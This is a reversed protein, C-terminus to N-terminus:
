DVNEMPVRRHWTNGQSWPSTLVATPAPVAWKVANIIVQQVEKQYYTPYAEHGPRFYFIKGLGRKWCCGSRFVEGGKFWSVYVLEDPVPVDFPEGYMEEHELVIQEPLGAAIPHNPAVCWVREREGVDRWKLGGSTGLLRTFPKSMHGSHLVILGMGDLVRKQVRAAIEDKVLHHAMHGWWTLVDTEALVQESLGHEEDDDLTATRVAFGAEKLADGIINHMGNPYVKRIEEHTKEHRGENWVTVRIPNSM